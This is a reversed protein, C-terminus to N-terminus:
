SSFCLGSQNELKDSLRTMASRKVGIATRMSFKDTKLDNYVDVLADM